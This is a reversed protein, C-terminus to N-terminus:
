HLQKMKLWMLTMRLRIVFQEMRVLDDRLDHKTERMVDTSTVSNSLAVM